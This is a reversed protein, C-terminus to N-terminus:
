KVYYAKKSEHSYSQNLADFDMPIEAKKKCAVIEQNRPAKVKYALDGRM